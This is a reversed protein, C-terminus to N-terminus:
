SARRNERPASLGLDIDFSFDMEPKLPVEDPNVSSWHNADLTLQLGDAVMQNRRITLAKEMKHRPAGEDIDIWLTRQKGNVTVTYAHNARYPMGTEPDIRMDTRAAESIEKALLDIPDRPVPLKWGRGVAWIAVDHHDIDTINMEEKYMRIMKLRDKLKSM